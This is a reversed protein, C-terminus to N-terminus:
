RRGRVQMLFYFALGALLVFAVLAGIATGLRTTPAQQAAPIAEPKDVKTVRLGHEGFFRELKELLAAYAAGDLPIHTGRFRHAHITELCAFSRLEAAGAGRDCYGAVITQGSAPPVLKIQRLGLREEGPRAGERMALEVGAARFEAHFADVFADHAEDGAKRQPM